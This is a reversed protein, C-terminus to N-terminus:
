IKDSANKLVMTIVITDNVYEANLIKFVYNSRLIDLRREKDIQSLRLFAHFGNGSFAPVAKLYEKM